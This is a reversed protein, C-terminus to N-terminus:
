ARGLKAGAQFDRPPLRHIISESQHIRVSGNVNVTYQKRDMVLLSMIAELALQRPPRFSLLM